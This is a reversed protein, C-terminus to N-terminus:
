LNAQSVDSHENRRESRAALCSYLVGFSSWFLCGAEYPLQWTKSDVINEQTQTDAFRILLYGLTLNLLSWLLNVEPSSSRGFPTINRRGTLAVILHPNSNTLFAGGFFYSIFSSLKM